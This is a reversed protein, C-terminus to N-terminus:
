VVLGPLAKVHKELFRAVTKIRYLNRREPLFAISLSVNKSPLDDSCAEIRPDSEAFYVPLMGIGAGAAIMDRTPSLGDVSMSIQMDPFYKLAFEPVTRNVPTAIYTPAREQSGAERYLRWIASGLMKVQLGKEQRRGIRLGMDAEFRRLDVSRDSADLELLIDPYLDLFEVFAPALTTLLHQSLSLRVRGGRHKFATCPELGSLAEEALEAAAFTRRGERTLVFGEEGRDFLAEGLRDELHDLRRAITTRDIRLMRGAASLSGERALALFIPLDAFPLSM